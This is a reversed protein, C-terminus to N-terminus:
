LTFTRCEGHLTDLLLLRGSLLHGAGTILKMVEAAQFSATAGAAPGAVGKPLVRGDAGMASVDADAGFLEAYFTRDGGPMCTTVQGTWGSVGGVVCPRDADNACAPVFHKCLSSDTAEVIVDYGGFLGPADDEGLRRIIATAKVGPNLRMLKEALVQAKYSGLVYMDYAVQRQLNHEEVIDFDVIDIVGIGAGALYLSVASGLAGAGVVLVRADCLRAQGEDGVEPLAITRSYRRRQEESLRM